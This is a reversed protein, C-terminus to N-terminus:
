SSFFQRAGRVIEGFHVGMRDLAFAGLLLLAVALVADLLVGGRRSSRLHRLGM